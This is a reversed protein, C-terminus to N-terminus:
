FFFPPPFFFPPFCPFPLCSPLFSWSPLAWRTLMRVNCCHNWGKKAWANHSLVNGPTNEKARERGTERNSVCNFPFPSLFFFFRCLGNCVPVTLTSCLVPCGTGKKSVLNSLSTFSSLSSHSSHPHVRCLCRATQKRNKTKQQQTDIILRGGEGRKEQRRVM